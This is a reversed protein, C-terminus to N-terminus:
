KLGQGRFFRMPLKLTLQCGDPRQAQLKKLHLPQHSLRACSLAFGKSSRLTPVEWPGPASQRCGGSREPKRCCSFAPTSIVESTLPQSCSKETCLLTKDKHRDASGSGPFCSPHARPEGHTPEGRGPRRRPGAEHSPRAARDTAERRRPHCGVPAAARGIAPLVPSRKPQWGGGAKHRPPCLSPRPLPGWGPRGPAPWPAWARRPM